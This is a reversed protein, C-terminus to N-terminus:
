VSALLAMFNNLLPFNQPKFGFSEMEKETKEYNWGYESKRYLGVFTGTRDRGNKCHIAIPGEKMYSFVRTIEEKTPPFLANQKINVYKIGFEKALNTEELKNKKNTNKLDIIVKVGNEHLKQMIESTPKSCRYIKDDVKEWYIKAPKGIYNDFIFTPFYFIKDLVSNVKNKIFNLASVQQKTSVGTFSLTDHVLTKQINKPHKLKVPCSVDSRYKIPPSYVAIKSM